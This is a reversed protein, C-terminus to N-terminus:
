EINTLVASVTGVIPANAKAALPIRNEDTSFWIWLRGKKLTKGDVRKARPEVEMASLNGIRGLNMVGEQLVDITIIWNKEDANVNMAIQSGVNVNHMRFYYICSLDDQTNELVVLDKTSDNLLSKYVATHKEQDYDVVECSKYKNESQKKIFQLTYLKEKDIYTDFEDDVRYLKSLFANTRVSVVVHYCDRNNIQAIEKVNFVAIGVPIGMWKVEYTLKEGVRLEQKAPVIKSLTNPDMLFRQRTFHFSGGCGSLIIVLLFICTMALLGAFRSSSAIEEHRCEEKYFDKQQM